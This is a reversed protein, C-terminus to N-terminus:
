VERWLPQYLNKYFIVYQYFLKHVEQSLEDGKIELDRPPMFILHQTYDQPNKDEKSQSYLKSMKDLLNSIGDREFPTSLLSIYPRSLGKENKINDILYIISEAASDDLNQNNSFNIIDVNQLYALFQYRKLEIFLYILYKAIINVRSFDIILVQKLKEQGEKTLPDAESKLRSLIYEVTVKEPRVNDKYLYFLDITTGDNTFLSHGEALSQLLIILAFFITKM